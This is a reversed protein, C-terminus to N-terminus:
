TTRGSPNTGSAQRRVKVLDMEFERFESCSHFLGIELIQTQLGMISEILCCSIKAIKVSAANIISLRVDSSPRLSDVSLGETTHRDVLLEPRTSYLGHSSTDHRDIERFRM